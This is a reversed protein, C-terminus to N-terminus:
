SYAVRLGSVGDALAAAFTGTPPALASWDRSDPGTVVDLLLATDAVTRTLPGVHALTGFPSSPYLPVRGYTAKMGVVGCFSGPIRVSGGGDTGISLPGMGFAVAASAGGSSGGATRKPDWPNRTVGTLPSDTVGKWGLEPTTTKGVLVAGSEHLRAVSPADEDWAQDPDVSLSGRRTPWGRTLLLDKISTPVGDVPGRPAGTSWRQEAAQAQTLASDADVLCYANVADDYAGIRALVAKTAEVPSVQRSRFGAM